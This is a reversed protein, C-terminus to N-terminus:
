IILTWHYTPPLCTFDFLTPRVLENEPDAWGAAGFFSQEMSKVSLLFTWLVVIKWAKALFVTVEGLEYLVKDKTCDRIWAKYSGMCM